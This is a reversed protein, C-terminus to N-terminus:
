AVVHRILGQAYQAARFAYSIAKDVDGGGPAGRFAHHSLVALYPEIEAATRTKGIGAAGALLVLRGHGAVVDDLAVRLARLEPERGVFPSSAAREGPRGAAAVRGSSLEYGRKMECQPAVSGAQDDLRLEKSLHLPPLRHQRVFRPRGNELITLAIGYGTM